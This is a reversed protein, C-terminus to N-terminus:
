RARSERAPKLATGPSQRAPSLAAELQHAIRSADGVDDAADPMLPMVPKILHFEAAAVDAVAIAAPM